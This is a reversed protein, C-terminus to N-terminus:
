KQYAKQINDLQEITLNIGGEGFFWTNSDFPTVNHQKIAKVNKIVPNNLAQPIQKKHQTSNKTRDIVFIKDPNLKELYENSIITGSSNPKMNSDAHRIGLNKNLFGGFRGSDAFVKIGKDDVNLFLVREDNIVKKTDEVKNNLKTILKDTQQEKNFIKGINKTNHKISQLYNDNDPSVFVIKAKPAAKKMEDLTQTHAQRFSAFILEPKTKALQDYDPKGPNGLNTYKKDKFENLSEPLLSSGQGKSVAVIRNQLKLSKMVDLAGYDMVAVRKPNVPVKTMETKVKGKNHDKNKEKFEYTQKITVTKQKEDKKDNSNTSCASLMVTLCLIVFLVKKM